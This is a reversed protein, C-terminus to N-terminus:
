SLNGLLLVRKLSTTFYVCRRPPIKVANLRWFLLVWSINMGNWTVRVSRRWPRISWDPDGSFFWHRELVQHFRWEDIWSGNLLSIESQYSRYLSRGNFISGISFLSGNPTYVPFPKATLSTIKLWRCTMFIVFFTLGPPSQSTKAWSGPWSRARLHAHRRNCLGRKTWGNGPRRLFPLYPTPNEGGKVRVISMSIGVIKVWYYRWYSLPSWTRTREGGCARADGTFSVRESTM